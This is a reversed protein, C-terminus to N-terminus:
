GTVTSMAQMSLDVVHNVALPILPIAIGGLLLLIISKVGFGVMLVNMQPAARALLGLVVEALFLAALLPLAIQIAAVLLGGLGEVLVSGLEGLDFGELPAVQFSRVIGGILLLHGGSTFLIVTALLQYMRAMPSAGAQGFPDYLVAGSFAANLDILAGASQVVSFLMLVIFGLAAGVVVQYGMSFILAPTELVKPGVEFRGTAVLGLAAALGVKVRIPVIPGAFPPAVVLFALIRTSALVVSTVLLPDLRIGV